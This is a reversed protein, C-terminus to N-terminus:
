ARREQRQPAHGFQALALLADARQVAGLGLPLHVGPLLLGYALGQSERSEVQSALYSLRTESDVGSYDDFNLWQSAGAMADWDATILQGDRAYRRWLVRQMLDGLRYPRLQVQEVGQVVKAAQEDDTQDQTTLHDPPLVPQPYVWATQNPRIWSWAKLLGFPFRGEIRLRGMVLPGRAPAVVWLTLDRWEGPPVTVATLAQRGGQLDPEQVSLEIHARDHGAHFRLTFPIERGVFDRGAAVQIIELGALNRYTQLIASFFLTGLLFTLLYILSNQYNIGTLLLIILLVGFAYGAGTPMIFINRQNFLFKEAPPLRQDIWRQWRARIWPLM